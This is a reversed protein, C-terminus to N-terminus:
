RQVEEGVEACIHGIETIEEETICRVDLLVCDDQIRAILPVPRLRLKRELSAASFGALKLGVGYSAFDVAPLTGGGAQSNVPYVKADWKRGLQKMSDALKEARNQLETATTRLMRQVPIDDQPTGLTYDLLVGEIAALSLKDIRIARMLPHQQMLQLLSKKGIIIGAQAGGLLKDGSFTVVDIGAAIRDSVTPEQWSGSTLPLMSGSGLDEILPINHRRALEVLEEDEPQATFGVIRYNSTHVKLIAATNPGVAQDFDQIRTKNTTGVEVMIAGSQQLVEPIRFSGGIEVLQGRSVIVERGGALASLALLIAAANNNVILAEEAGTLACIRAGVHGHRNGRGGTAIEYELNCYGAAVANLREMARKSLPARGLNTHLVIGTANIARKLSPEAAKQLIMVAQNVIADVSTDATQGSKLWGRVLETAERLAGVVLAHPQSSLNSDGCAAALLQDIAPIARLKKSIEDM